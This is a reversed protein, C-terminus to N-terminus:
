TDLIIAVLLIVDLIDIIGDATVDGATEQYESPESFGLIIDILQVIDLIDVFLDGNLDGPLLENPNYEFAGMDPASGYFEMPPVVLTDQGDNYVLITDQIGSDICPSTPLLSYDNVEPDVFQPEVDINGEGWNVTADDDLDINLEGGQINSHAIFVNSYSDDIYIEQPINNWSIDNVLYLESDNCFMGGGNVATNGIFIVKNLIPDSSNLYVGGGNGNASNNNITVKSLIPNSNISYIGGGLTSAANNSIIVNTLSSMSSSNYIGGGRYVAENDSITIDSLSIDSDQSFIGGGYGATNGNVIVDTLNPHSNLCYIGGGWYHAVGGYITVNNLSINSNSCYIGGGNFEATNNSLIINSLSLDSNACYIGGGYTTSGNTITVHTIASAQTHDFRLVGSISDANLVVSEASEGMITVFSQVNIPFSEDNTTPSYEGPLLYIIHPHLSDALIISNAYQITKLPTEPNLGSNANDGYPSVFHDGGCLSYIDQLIDFSFNELPTTYYDSPTAVTFTDVIVELFSLSLIDAGIGQNNVHNFYISCRSTDSFLPQSLNSCYMGGGLDGATNYSLSVGNLSPNSFSCYIGGGFGDVFNSRITVEILSPHSNYFYIGGGSEFASNSTIILDTLIPQSYTCYIGGGSNSAMNSSITVDYISPDSSNCYIGGGSNNATNSSIIVNNLNPNSGTACYIGGGNYSASNDAITLNFLSPDSSNCYIGGGNYASNDTITLNYLNPDSSNCYIGGGSNSAMNSSITVDYSSPNSGTACSIGGGNYASNDTITVNSLTLSSSGLSIGGGSNSAMNSSITVDYLSPNSGTACCIGGGNYSASNETITLNSLVPDSNACYIGGGCTTSGNTITVHTIASAQAHDFRLVGSNSDANLVVSEASEGMLTVYSLVNIPFSEGNTSPSYEGPLLHFVHPHLSDALIISNAYQITKLPTEPSIGNNANDGNPSIYLDADIQSSLGHLIDFSFNELPSAYYQTPTTVTFTDVIVEVFDLSFIDAGNGQNNVHNLYISCRSTDSFIPQSSFICLMGGGVNNASNGTITLNSLNPNSHSCSIGGGFSASNESIIVNTLSPSSQYCYIGGGYGFASNISNGSITVNTLTPSSQYCCIGGGNGSAFITSNGSITVNTLTPSSGSCCYIGGGSNNATNSSIIVDNLNPNSSDCYMGSGKSNASNNSIIINSISPDSYYIYMGGGDGDANGGSLTLFEIASDIAHDFVLIGGDEAEVGEADLITVAEGAGSLTLYSLMEIPYMEGTQSPSYTGAALHITTPNDESPDIVSMAHNITLYPSEASGDNTEDNGDTAVYIHPSLNACLEGGGLTADIESEPAAVWYVPVQGELCNYVDFYGRSLDVVEALGRVLASQTVTAQNNDFRNHAFFLTDNRTLSSIGAPGASNQWEDIDIDTGAWLAGGEDVLVQGTEDTGNQRFYNYQIVPRLRNVAVGGGVQKQRFYTTDPEVIEREYRTGKGNRITFGFLQPSVYEEVEPTFFICSGLDDEATAWSGDIVTNNIIMSDAETLIPAINAVDLFSTLVIARGVVLNEFYIGPAVKVTDGDLAVNIGEQITWFAQEESLGTQTGQTGLSDSNVYWTQQGFTLSCCLVLGVFTFYITSNQM